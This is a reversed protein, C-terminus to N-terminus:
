GLIEEGEDFSEVDKDSVADLIIIPNGMMKLSVMNIQSLIWSTPKKIRKM